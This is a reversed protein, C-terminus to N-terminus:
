KKAALESGSATLNGHVMFRTPNDRQDAIAKEAENMSLTQKTAPQSFSHFGHVPTVTM